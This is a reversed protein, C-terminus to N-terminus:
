SIGGWLNLLVVDAAIVDVSQLLLTSRLLLSQVFLLSRVAGFDHAVSAVVSSCCSLLTDAAAHPVVCDAPLM